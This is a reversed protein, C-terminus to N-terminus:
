KNKSRIKYYFNPFYSIILTKFFLEPEKFIFHVSALIVNRIKKHNLTKATQAYYDRDGSRISQKCIRLLKETICFTMVYNRIYKDQTHRLICRGVRWYSLVAQYYTKYHFRDKIEAISQQESHHIYIYPAEKIYSVCSSLAFSKMVIEFDECIYCKEPFKLNNKVLFDRRFICCWAGYFCMKNSAWARIFDEPKELPYESFMSNYEYRNDKVYYHIFDCISIDTNKKEAENCLLSVYNKEVLDDHDVFIVYKGKATKLGTNRSASQRGNVTRKIITFKRGSNELVEQSIKVTDDTSADNVLIIELNEYDQNIISALTKAIRKAGNYTPIIISVLPQTSSM